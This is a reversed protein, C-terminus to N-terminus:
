VSAYVDSRKQKEPFGSEWWDTTEKNNLPFFEKCTGSASGEGSVHNLTIKKRKPLHIVPSALRLLCLPLQLFHLACALATLM